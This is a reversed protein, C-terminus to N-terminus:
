SQGGILNLLFAAASPPPELAGTAVQELWSERVIGPGTAPELLHPNARWHAAVKSALVAGGAPPRNARQMRQLAKRRVKAATSAFQRASGGLSRNAFAAPSPRGDLPVNGLDADLALQLRSLFLSRSKDRPALRNALSIFRHDLMPNVVERDLCVATETIGAWRQMRHHLYLHDTAGMWPRGSALLEQTVEDTAFERAWSTFGPEFAETPVAENVFMRWAALRAARVPTVEADTPRGSYYFGRAVEGGLGSLRPGPQSRAEVFALAAHALPDATYDLRRAAIQCLEYAEADELLELGDLSLVEHHMHYRRALAAAIDVDPVGPVGLTVARLGARKEVPIASLLLRSDQGGTLQLGVDPHQEVYATLYRRLFEAAQRVAEDLTVPDHTAPPLYSAIEGTGGSLTVLTGPELKTVGAFLTRQGLQWGLVSQVALAQTDLGAGRTKALARSSTAVMAWDPGSAHYLHRFGLYDVAAVLRDAGDRTAAAFTPLVEVLRPRAPTTLLEHVDCPTLTTDHRRASACLLLAEGEVPMPLGWVMTEVGGSALVSEPDASVAASFESLGPGAGGARSVALLGHDAIGSV